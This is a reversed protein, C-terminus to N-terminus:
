PNEPDCTGVRLWAGGRCQLLEGSGSCVYDTRSFAVDNLYCPRGDEELEQGLVEFEEDTDEVIPSNRREPDPAGVYTLNKVTEM